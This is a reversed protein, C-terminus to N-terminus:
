DNLAAKLKEILDVPTPNLGNLLALYLSVFDGLQMTLLLQKLLTDGEPTVVEPHPRKGSLLRESIEFRKQVREHELNSRIDIVKYPKEVPHSVWGLFENHNFEPYQNCWAVNKANENFNIKWKYAIPSLKPGSYVVISNGMLEQALQKAPNKSTPVTPLLSDVESKMYDMASNLEAWHEDNILGVKGLITVLARFNYLVAMRPQYGSPLEALPYNKERAIEALKGGSSIVTIKAGRDEAQALASLTEETNGSYSSAIFLTKDSVYAPIDYSRCVEFPLQYGPWSLSLSAALASGGMGAFVINEYNSGELQWNSTDFEHQLQQWQKEAVGLADQADRSHIMKLDDLMRKVKGIKSVSQM